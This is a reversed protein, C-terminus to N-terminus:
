SRRGPQMSFTYLPVPDSTGYVITLPDPDSASYVLRDLPNPSRGINLNGPLLNDLKLHQYAERSDMKYPHKDLDVM